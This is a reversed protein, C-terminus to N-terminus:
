PSVYPGYTFECDGLAEPRRGGCSLAWDELDFPVFGGQLEDCAVMDGEHCLQADEEYAGTESSPPPTPSGLESVPSGDETELGAADPPPAVTDSPSAGEDTEPDMLWTGGQNVLRARESITEGGSTVDFSVVAETASEEILQFNDFSMDDVPIYEFGGAADCQLTASEVVLENFAICDNAEMASTIAEMAALPGSSAGGASGSGGGGNNEDDDGSLLFAAGIVAAIGLMALIILLTTKNGGSPAQPGPQQQPYSATLPSPPLPAGRQIPQGWQPDGPQTPQGGPPGAPQTTQGGPPGAAPHTPQDWSPPGAPPRTTTTAQAEWGSQGEVAPPAESVPATAAQQLMPLAAESSLRDAVPRTLLGRIVEALPPGCPPPPPDEFLIARLTATTTERDFPAVGAVAHFLTAGLAWLDGAPGAEGGEFREPALYAHTGIVGSRTLRADDAALAIGFDTLKVKDGEGVLVNAPKIDRHVIGMAHAAGLADLIGAGIAAVRHPPLPGQEDIAEALSPAPVYEMVIYVAGDDGAPGAVDYVSVVGPHNLRGANRAERLAREVFSDEDGEVVGSPARVEKLAVQRDILTDAALWVTGMGGRGLVSELRYRGAVVRSSMKEDSEILSGSSRAM